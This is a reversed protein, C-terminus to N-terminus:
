PLGHRDRYRRLMAERLRASLYFGSAELDVLTQPFDPLLGLGEARELVGLTGSVPLHLRLAVHRGERDDILLLDAALEMALRIAEREGADLALLEPVHARAERPGRVQLWAAANALFHKVTNPTSAANLESWVAPPLTLRGYLKRLLEGKGIAVLHRLPTADAVVTM